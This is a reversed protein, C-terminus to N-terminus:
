CGVVSDQRAVLPAPSAAGHSARTKGHAGSGAVRGCGTEREGVIKTSEGSGEAMPPRESPEAELSLLCLHLSTRTQPAPLFSRTNVLEVPVGIRRVRKPSTQRSATLPGARRVPGAEVRQPM